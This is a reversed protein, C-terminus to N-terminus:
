LVYLQEIVDNTFVYLTKEGKYLKVHLISGGELIELVNFVDECSIDKINNYNYYHQTISNKFFSPCIKIYKM